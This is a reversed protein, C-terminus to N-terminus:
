LNRVGRANEAKKERKKEGKIKEHMGKGRGGTKDENRLEEVQVCM